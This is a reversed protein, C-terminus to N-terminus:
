VRVGGEGGPLTEAQFRISAARRADAVPYQARVLVHDRVRLVPAEGLDGRSHRSGAGHAHGAPEPVLSVAARPNRAPHARSIGHPLSNLVRPNGLTSVPLPSSGRRLFTQTAWRAKAAKKAIATRKKGGLKQARAKGGALGGKGRAATAASEPGKPSDNPVEGTAMDIVLKALQMPDRPRKPHKAV